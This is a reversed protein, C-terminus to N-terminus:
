EVKAADAADKAGWRRALYACTLLQMQHFIMMPLIISSAQSPSFIINAMPVGSILSKKSGCFTIVVRDARNFGLRLGAQHTIILALTLILACAVMLALFISWSLNGWLGSSTGHSFSSYVIFLVSLRDTYSIMTRRREVWLALKLRALQGLGFPLVLQLCLDAIAQGVSGGASAGLTLGVWVPTIFVGLLSSASAACVAAAVNGNAISTFAISSQVTSPLFCLFLLGLYLDPSSLRTLVPKLGLGLLPFLLFTALVIVLHLRWNTLGAWLKQPSLKLGHMFFLSAIVLKSLFSVARYALGEAPLLVALIVTFVMALTFGDLHKDYFNYIKSFFTM